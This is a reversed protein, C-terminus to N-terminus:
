YGLPGGGKSGVIDRWGRAGFTSRFEDVMHWSNNSDTYWTRVRNQFKHSTIMSPMGKRLRAPNASVFWATPWTLYRYAYPRLAEYEPNIARDSTTPKDPSGLIERAIQMMAANAPVTLKVADRSIALGRASLMNQLITIAANMSDASLSTNGLSNSFPAQNRASVPGTDGPVPDLIHYSSILPQGDPVPFSPNWAQNLTGSYLRDKTNQESFAFMEASDGMMHMPDETQAEESYEVELSYTFFSFHAPILEYPADKRPNEFENRRHLVGLEAVEGVEMFSREPDNDVEVFVEPYQAPTKDHMESVIETLAHNQAYYSSRTGYLGANAAM